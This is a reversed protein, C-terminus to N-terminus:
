ANFYFGLLSKVPFRFILEMDAFNSWTFHKIEFWTSISTNVSLFSSSVNAVDLVRISAKEEGKQSSLFLFPPATRVYTLFSMGLWSKGFLLKGFSTSLNSTSVFNLFLFHNSKPIRGRLIILIIKIAKVFRQINITIIFFNNKSSIEVRLFVLKHKIQKKKLM